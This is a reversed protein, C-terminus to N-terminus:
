VTNDHKIITNFYIGVLIVTKRKNATFVIDPFLWHTADYILIIIYGYRAVWGTINTNM